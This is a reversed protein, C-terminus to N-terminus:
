LHTHICTTPIHAHTPMNLSKNVNGRPNRARACVCVREHARVCVCVCVCVRREAGEESGEEQRKEALPPTTHVPVTPVLRRRSAASARRFSDMTSVDSDCIRTHLMEEKGQMHKGTIERKKIARKHIYRPTEKCAQTRMCKRAHEHIHRRGGGGGLFFFFFFFLTGGMIYVRKQPNQLLGIHNICRTQMTTYTCVEAQEWGIRENGGM